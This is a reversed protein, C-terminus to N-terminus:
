KSNLVKEIKELRLELEKIRQDKVKNEVELKHNLANLAEQDAKQVKISAIDRDLGVFKNYLEQFAKILPSILETYRVSYGDTEEDRTVIVNNSNNGKAKAIAAEAEQAIVGYHEEAGQNADKWTWSVPRLSNIFNLGLDSNKVNKKLRSDSSVNPANSLYINNWRLSSSGINKTATTDPTIDGAVQLKSTPGTVGIGVNGYLLTSTITNSGVVAQNSVATAGYGIAIANTGANAGYGIAVYRNAVVGNQADKGIAVGDVGGGFQGAGHGVFVGNTQSGTPDGAARYGVATMQYDATFSVGSNYRAGVGIYTNERSTTTGYGAFSGFLANDSAAGSMSLGAVAGFITNGSGTAATNITGAMLTWTRPSQIQWQSICSGGICFGGSSNIQGSQVDLKYTPNTTAIGVNGAMYNITTGSTAWQSGNGSTAPAWATGNFALVQGSTPNTNVSSIVRSRTNSANTLFFNAGDYEMTGSQASSLLTGSSFKLPALTSTGAKIELAASPATTGIGVNGSPAVTIRVNSSTVLNISGTGLANFTANSNLGGSFTLQDSSATNNYIFYRGNAAETGQAWTATGTTYNMSAFNGPATGSASVTLAGNSNTGNTVELKSGPSTTGVGVRQNQTVSLVSVGNVRIDSRYSGPSLGDFYLGYANIGGSASQYMNIARTSFDPSGMSINGQVHLKELPNQTGIGISGSTDITLRASSGATVDTITFKDTKNEVAWEYPSATNTLLLKAYDSRTSRIVGSVELAVAPTITGVGVNGSSNIFLDTTSPLGNSGGRGLSLTGATNFTSIFTAGSPVSGTVSNKNLGMMLYETGANGVGIGYINTSAGINGDFLGLARADTTSGAGVVSLKQIPNNTGIGVNGSSDIRLRETYSTGLRLVDASGAANRTGIFAGNSNQSLTLNGFSTSGLTLQDTPATTGIGVNGNGKVAFISDNTRTSSSSSYAGATVLFPTAGTTDDTSVVLGLSGNSSISAAWGGGSTAKSWNFFNHAGGNGLAGYNINTNAFQGTPATTGVGVNGNYQTMATSEFFTAPATAAGTGTLETFVTSAYGQQEIKVSMSGNLTGATRRVRLYVASDGATGPMIDLDFNDSGWISQSIPLVKYWATTPYYRIPIVYSKAIAVSSRDYNLYVNLNYTRNGFAFRGLEIYDDINSPTSRTLVYSKLNNALLQNTVTIASASLTGAINADGAVGLGGKVILAGTNANTSATTSSVIVSGTPTMMINGSSNINSANDISGASSGTAISRRTSTSDTLYFQVGDYEMTGSQPSTLLTGSTFKLSAASSTGAALHLKANPAAIGVGVNGAFYAGGDGKIHAKEGGDRSFILNNSNGGTQAHTISWDDTEGGAGLRLTPNTGNITINGDVDLKDVPTATGIGVNGTSAIRMREITTESVGSRTALAIYGSTSTTENENGGMIDAMVGTTGSDLPSRNFRLVAAATGNGIGYGYSNNINAVVANGSIANSQVTFRSVPATTGVGVNGTMYNISTGSTAWQTAASASAPTYGLATTVDISALVSSSTVRGKADVTMKSYTGPTVGSNSFTITNSGAAISADGSFSPLRAIALTGTASASGLDLSSITAFGGLGLNTRASASSTLDSLNNTKTLYDALDSANAPTYGMVQAISAASSTIKNSFLLYDANSIVGATTTGASAFPFNFTHVSGASSVNPFNGSSGFAFTQSGSVLGNLSLIGSGSLGFAAWSAGNCYEVFGANYRLTGAYSAACSANEMSIRLGGSVELSTVPSATGIGVNGSNTIRLREAYSTGTRFVHDGSVNYIDYFSGGSATTGQYARAGMSTSQMGWYHGGADTTTQFAAAASAGAHKNQVKLITYTNQDKRIDLAGAPNSTGIGVNGTSFHVDSGNSEWQSSVISAFSAAMSAQLSTLNSSMTNVTASSAPVYGLVDTIQTASASLKSKFEAYDTSTLYGDNSLSVAALSIVPQSVTGTLSLAGGGVAISSVVSTSSPITICTFSANNFYLMTGSACTPIDTAKQVFEAASKGDLAVSNAAKAAYMAFPVSNITMAPLTQWGAGDNFQMVIKRNDNPQPLYPFGAQQCTFSSTSNDFMTKFTDTTGSVPFIRAGGGLSFFALGGSGSMNVASYDEVYISCTASIDMVTFRFNVHSSELPLGDPKYIRASYTARSPVAEVLLSFVSVVIMPLLSFKGTLLKKLKFKFGM